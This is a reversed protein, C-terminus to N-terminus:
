TMEDFNKLIQLGDRQSKEPHFQCGFINDKAFVSDFEFGYDTVAIVESKNDLDSYFSHVFYCSVENKLGALLPNNKVVKVNNWGVHPIPLKGVRGKFNLVRGKVFGLGKNFGHEESSELLLQMGLCLGLLPKNQTAFKNLAVIFGLDNLQEMAQGFAGVGPLILKDCGKIDRANNVFKNSINLYDLSNKVSKLNGMKYNLIGIM